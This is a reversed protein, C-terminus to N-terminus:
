SAPPGFVLTLAEPDHFVIKEVLTFGREITDM